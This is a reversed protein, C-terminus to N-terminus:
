PFFHATFNALDPFTLDTQAIAAPALGTVALQSRRNIWATRFGIQRAPVHDHYLSQAVHLIQNPLVNLRRLAETFHAHGPKYSRVQEATIVEAFRVKLQKETERFLSDDTNSLIVLQFRPSLKQLAAVTDPFPLWSPLSDVLTNQEGATLSLNLDGAVGLMVGRLIDRYPTWAQNELRAEHEVYSRLVTSPSAALGSRTLLPQIAELIGSEWDILTGYCDFTLHTIENIPIM